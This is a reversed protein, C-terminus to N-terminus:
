VYHRSELECDQSCPHENVLQAAFMIAIVDHVTRWLHTVLDFVVTNPLYVYRSNPFAAPEMCVATGHKLHNAGIELVLVFAGLM